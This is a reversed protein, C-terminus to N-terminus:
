SPVSAWLTTGGPEAIAGSLESVSRWIAILAVAKVMRIFESERKLARIATPYAPNKDV